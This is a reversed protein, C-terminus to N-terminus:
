DQREPIIYTATLYDHLSRKKKNTFAIVIGIITLIIIICYDM